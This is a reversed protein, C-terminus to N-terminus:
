IKALEKNLAKDLATGKKGKSLQTMTQQKRLMGGIVGDIQAAVQEQSRPVYDSSEDDDFGKDEEFSDDQARSIDDTGTGTFGPQDELDTRDSPMEVVAPQTLPQM